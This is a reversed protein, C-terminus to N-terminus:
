VLKLSPTKTKRGGIALRDRWNRRAAPHVCPNLGLLGVIVAQMCVRVAGESDKVAANLTSEWGRSGANTSRTLIALLAQSSKTCCKPSLAREYLASIDLLHSMNPVTYLEPNPIMLDSLGKADKADKADQPDKADQLDQVDKSPMLDDIIALYEAHASTWVAVM